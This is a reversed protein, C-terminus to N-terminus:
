HLMDSLILPETEAVLEPNLERAKALSLKASFTNGLQMQCYAMQIHFIARRRLTVPGELIWRAADQYRSMEMLCIAGSTYALECEPYHAKLMRASILADSWACKTVLATLRLTMYRESRRALFEVQELEELCEDAMDLFLYGAAADLQREANM